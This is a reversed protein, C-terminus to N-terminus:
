LFPTTQERISTAILHIIQVQANVIACENLGDVVIVM